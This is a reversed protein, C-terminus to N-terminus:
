GLGGDGGGNDDDWVVAGTLVKKVGENTIVEVEVAADGNDPDLTLKAYLNNAFRAGVEVM